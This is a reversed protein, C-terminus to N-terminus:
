VDPKAEWFHLCRFCRSWNEEHSLRSEVRFIGISGCNPCGPSIALSATFGWPQSETKIAVMDAIYQTGDLVAPRVADLEDM